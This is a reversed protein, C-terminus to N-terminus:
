INRLIKIHKKIIEKKRKGNHKVSSHRQPFLRKIAQRSNNKKRKLRSAEIDRNYNCANASSIRTLEKQIMKKLELIDAVLEKKNNKVDISDIKKAIQQISM